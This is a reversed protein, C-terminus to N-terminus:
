TAYYDAFSSVGIYLCYSYSRGLDFVFPRAAAELALFKAM